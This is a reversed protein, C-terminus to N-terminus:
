YNLVKQLEDRNESLVSCIFRYADELQMYSHAGTIIICGSQFVACTVKRCDGPGYGNGEGMCIPTGGEGCKCIGDQPENKSTNLHNWMFSIKVGPYICPEYNAIIGYRKTLVTYLVERRVRYDIKFDSNILCIKYSSVCPSQACPDLMVPKGVAYLADVLRSLVRRGEEVNRVGTMQVRGNRFCKVNVGRQFGAMLREAEWYILTCQNDFHKAPRRKRRSSQQVPVPIGNEDLATRRVVIAPLAVVVDKDIAPLAPINMAFQVSAFGWADKEKEEEETGNCHQQPPASLQVSCFLVDLNLSANVDGTATITSIKYPTPKIHSCTKLVDRFYDLNM